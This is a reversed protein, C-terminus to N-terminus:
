AHHAARARRHHAARAKKSVRHRKAHKKAKPKAPAPQPSAPTADQPALQGFVTTYTLGNTQGQVPAGDAIGVGIEDYPAYLINDRHTPSNMWGNVMARPTAMDDTGWGLNEGIVSWRSALDPYASTVRYVVDHGNVDLHAFHDTAVMAASYRSAVDALAPNSALPGLGFAARQQNLLCLTASAIQDHTATGPMADAFPCDDAHAPAAAFLLALALTLLCASARARWRVFQM